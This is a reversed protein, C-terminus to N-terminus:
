NKSIGTIKYLKIIESSGSSPDFTVVMADERPNFTVDQPGIVDDSRGLLTDQLRGDSDLVQINDSGFGCVVVRGDKLVFLGRPSNMSADEYKFRKMTKGTICTVHSRNCDSIYLNAGREDMKIYWPRFFMPHFNDTPALSHTEKGDKTLIKICPPSACACTVAYTDNAFAIGYCRDSTSIATTPTPTSGLSFLGIKNQRPFTVAVDNRGLVTIGWPQNELSVEKDVKGERILKLKNNARDVLIIRDDPLYAVGTFWCSETDTPTNCAVNSIFDAKIPAPQDFRVSKLSKKDSKLSKLDAKSGFNHAGSRYFDFEDEPDSNSRDLHLLAPSPLGAKTKSVRLDGLKNIDSMLRDLTSDVVFEIKTHKIRGNLNSLKYNYYEGQQATPKMAQLKHSDTGYKTTNAALNYVKASSTRLRQAEKMEGQLESKTKSHVDQLEAIIKAECKALNDNIKKRVSQIKVLAANQSEDIQRDEGNRNEHISNALKSEENLMDNSKAMETKRKSAAQALTNVNKCDKHTEAVCKECVIKLHQECYKTVNEGKHDSCLPSSIINEMPQNKLKSLHTLVHGKTTKLANHFAVCEDCLADHCSRCWQEAEKRKNQRDCTDCKKHPDKLSRAELYSVLFENPAIHNAWEVPAEVGKPAPTKQQCVPCSIERESRKKDDEVTEMIYTM